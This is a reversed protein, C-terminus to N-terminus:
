WAGGADQGALPMCHTGGRGATAGGRVGPGAARGGGRLGLLLRRLQPPRSPPGAAAAVPGRAFRPPRAPPSPQRRSPRRVFAGSKPTAQLLPQRLRHLGLHATPRLWGGARGPRGARSGAVQLERDVMATVDMFVQLAALTALKAAISESRYRCWCRPPSMHCSALSCCQNSSPSAPAPLLAPPGGPLMPLHRCQCAVVGPSSRTAHAKADCLPLLASTCCGVEDISAKEIVASPALRHLLAVVEACAQRCGVRNPFRPCVPPRAPRM